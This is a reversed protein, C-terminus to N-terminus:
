APWGTRRALWRLGADGQARQFARVTPIGPPDPRLAATVFYGTVAALARTIDGPDAGYAELATEFMDIEAEGGQALVSPALCVVDFWAAGISAWPWDVLVVGDATLLINDARLDGHVLATGRTAAGPFGGAQTVAEVVPSGLGVEVLARIPAPAASWPPRPTSM